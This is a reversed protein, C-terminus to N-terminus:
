SFHPDNSGSIVAATDRVPALAGLYICPFTTPHPLQTKELVMGVSADVHVRTAAAVVAPGVPVRTCLLILHESATSLRNILLLRHLRFYATVYPCVGSPATAAGGGSQSM